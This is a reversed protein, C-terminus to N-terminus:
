TNEKMENLSATVLKVILESSLESTQSFGIIGKSIKCGVLEDIHNEAVPPVSTFDYIPNRIVLGLSCVTIIMARM